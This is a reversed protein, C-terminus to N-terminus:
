TGQRLTDRVRAALIDATFPKQLFRADKRLIGQNIAWNATYGSVYLVKMDPHKEALKRYLTTGDMGPLILDTLLLDIPGDHTAAANLAMEPETANLVTYGQLQLIETCLNSIIIDDDVVLVTDRQRDCGVRIQEPPSEDGDEDVRPLYVNVTAGRGPESQIEIHGEHQRVIGFVTSLGLGTGKGKEKTTFFPEFVKSRTEFDMGVGTDAVSIQVYRGPRVHAQTRVYDEELVVNATEMTLKGGAPMADRANVAWTSCSRNSVARM